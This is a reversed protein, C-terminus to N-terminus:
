LEVSSQDGVILRHGSPITSVAATVRVGAGLISDIVRRGCEIHARDGVIAREVESGRVTVHSGLSTYPGLYARELTCNEGIVVPGRIVCDAGIRSGRGIKVWGSLQAGEEVMGESEMGRGQRETMLLQNGDLLDEPKGTDKWWGTIEEHGVARGHEILWTHVDSIEYEGRSSPGIARAAEFYAPGYIYIGTVAFDSPPQAPKELVRVVRGDKIEPVGFRQPDPVRSLALLCDLKEREFKDVFRRLSGLIINDGLYFIFPETEGLFGAANLPIRGIGTPGGDQEIYTLRVGWRSGDGCAKQIETEGPNVNIGIEKIGVEALKAIANWLLPEGALPILHKNVTTTIPRLRTARGGAAIIAKM